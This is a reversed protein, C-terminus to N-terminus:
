FARVARVSGPGSKHHYYPNGNSFNQGWSFDTSYQSSSWYYGSDFGGIARINTYMANLEDKSPLFWDDYDGSVYDACARAAPADADTALILATNAAGSGIASTTGSIDTSQYATSAWAKTGSIDAPAAELYKWGPYADDADVYFIIGGAPGPNGIAYGPTGQVIASDADAYGSKHATVIVSYVLEDTLNPIDGTLSTAGSIGPANAKVTAAATENGAIWYVDYSDAEPDSATITYGLQSHEPTLAISPASVWANVTFSVTFTKEETINGGSVTLTASYSATGIAHGLGTKPQVTFNASNSGLATGISAIDASPAIEFNDADGTIGVSLVGTEANGTNRVTVTLAAPRTTYDTIAEGFSYNGGLPDSGGGSLAISYVPEALTVTVWYDATTLEDAATVTYKVPNSESNSFDTAVGNEPSISGGLFTIYPSLADLATGYPVTLTITDGVPVASVDDSLNPNSTGALFQFMEISASDSKQELVRVEYDRFLGTTATTVTYTVLSASFDQAGKPSYDSGVSTSVTPILNNLSVGEPVVVVIKGATQDINGAAEPESLSQNESQTFRFATIVPLENDPIMRGDVSWARTPPAIGSKNITVLVIGKVVDPVHEVTLRYVADSDKTIGAATIAEAGSMNEGNNFTFLAALDAVPTDKTLGAVPKSFDLVLTAKGEVAVSPVLRIWVTEPNLTLGSTDAIANCSVFSLATLATCVLLVLKTVNMGLFFSKKRM